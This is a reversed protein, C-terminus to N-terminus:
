AYFIEELLFITNLTELINPIMFFPLFICLHLMKLMHIHTGKVRKVIYTCTFSLVPQTKYAHM